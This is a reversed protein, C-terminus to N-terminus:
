GAIRFGKERRLPREETEMNAIRIRGSGNLRDLLRDITEAEGQIEMEVRGDSLNAVWGTLGLEEALYFATYRFGVEQVRGSFYCHRRVHGAQKLKLAEAEELEKEEAGGPNASLIRKWFGVSM